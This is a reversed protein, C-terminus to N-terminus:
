SIRVHSSNLRTSKRDIERGDPYVDLVRVMVDFDTKSTAHTTTHGKAYIGARPFGVYTMTDILPSSIFGLVDSRDMTVTNYDPNTLDMSGQSKKGGGPISPIM